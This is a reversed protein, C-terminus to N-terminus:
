LKFQKLEGIPIYYVDKNHNYEGERIIDHNKIAKVFMDHTAYGAIDYKWNLNSVFDYLQEETYYSFNTKYFYQNFRILFHYDFIINQNNNIYIGENNFHKCQETLWHNRDRTAKVSINYIKGKYDLKLDGSDGFENNTYFDPMRCKFRRNRFYDCLVYEALKGNFLSYFKNLRGWYIALSYADNFAAGILQPKVEMPIFPKDNFRPAM